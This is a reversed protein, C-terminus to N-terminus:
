NKKEFYRPKMRALLEPPECPKEAFSRKTWIKEGSREWYYTGTDGSYVWVTDNKGWLFYLADRTRYKDKSEFIISNEVSSELIGAISFKNYECTGDDGGNIILSYKGSPSLVPNGTVACKSKIEDYIGNKGVNENLIFLFYLMAAFIFLM